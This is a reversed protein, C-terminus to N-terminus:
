RTSSAEKGEKKGGVTVGGKEMQNNLFRGERNRLHNEKSERLRRVSLSTMRKKKKGL